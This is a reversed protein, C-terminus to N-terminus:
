YWGCIVMVKLGVAALFALLCLLADVKRRKIFREDMGKQEARPLIFILITLGWGVSAIIGVNALISYFAEM